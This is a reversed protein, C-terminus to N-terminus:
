RGAIVIKGSMGLHIGLIVDDIAPSTRCWMSKGQRRAATLEGREIVVRASEVEVLEPM